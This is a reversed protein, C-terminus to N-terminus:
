GRIKMVELYEMTDADVSRRHGPLGTDATHVGEL